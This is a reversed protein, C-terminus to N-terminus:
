TEAQIKAYMVKLRQTRSNKFVVDHNYDFEYESSRSGTLVVKTAPDNADNVHIDFYVREEKTQNQSSKHWLASNMIVVDGPFLDPTPKILEPPLIDSIEGADGLFGFQHTGPYFSIAGNEQYCKTLPIFISYREFFGYQYGIDQHLFVPLIDQADKKVIRINYLGVNGQFFQKALNQFELEKLIEALPNELSFRVETLHNKTRDFSDHIKYQYYFERYKEILEKSFYNRLIFFGLENLISTDVISDNTCSNKILSNLKDVPMRLTPM